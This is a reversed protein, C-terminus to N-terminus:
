SQANDENQRSCQASSSIGVERGDSRQKRHLNEPNTHPVQSTDNQKISQCPNIDHHGNFPREPGSKRAAIKLSSITGAYTSTLPLQKWM